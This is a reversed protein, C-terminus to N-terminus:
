VQELNLPLHINRHICYNVFSLLQNLHYPRGSEIISDILHHNTSPKHIMQIRVLFLRIYDFYWVSYPTFTTVTLIIEVFSSNCAANLILFVTKTSSCCTGTSSSISLNSSSA